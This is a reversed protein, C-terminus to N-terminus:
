QQSVLLDLTFPKHMSVKLGAIHHKVIPLREDDVKAVALFVTGLLGLYEVVHARWGVHGGFGVELGEVALLAVQPGESDDKELHQLPM